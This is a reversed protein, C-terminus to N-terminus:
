WRLFLLPLFVLLSLVSAGVILIRSRHIDQTKPLANGKGLCYINTKELEIELAGAMASMPFGANPSETLRADQCLTRWASLTKKGAALVIMIGTLRAPIFNLVDDFRAPFKGIWERSKDRYGLMADATNVFRYLLALPLGGLAYFFLPAIVSDSANEAVSEITAAAVHNENLQSTDRSVLHWSLLHRAEPLDGNKLTMEIEGSTRWLGRLSFTMKLLIAQLIVGAWLPLKFFLIELGYGAAGFLLAGTLTIMMGFTFELASSGSPRKKFIAGIFSGMWATPHFSNPPDDLLWDLLLALLFAPLHFFFLHSM